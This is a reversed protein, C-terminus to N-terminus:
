KIEIEKIHDDNMGKALASPPNESELFTFMPISNGIRDGNFITDIFNLKLNTRIKDKVEDSKSPNEVGYKLLCTSKLKEQNNYNVDGYKELKTNKSQNKVSETQLTSKVGYRILNTTEMKDKVITSKAPSDVGLNTLLTRISKNRIEPSSQPYEVGYKNLNTIKTKRKFEPTQTYSDVGYTKQFTIKRALKQQEILESNSVACKHSCYKKHERKPFIFNGGCTLCTITECYFSQKCEISCFAHRGSKTSKNCNKCQRM